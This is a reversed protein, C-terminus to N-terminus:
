GHELERGHGIQCCSCSGYSCPLPFADQVRRQWISSSRKIKASPLSRRGSNRRVKIPLDYKTYVPRLFNSADMMEHHLDRCRGWRDAAALNIVALSTLSWSKWELEGFPVLYLITSVQNECGVWLKSMLVKSHLTLTMCMTAFQPSFKDQQGTWLLFFVM